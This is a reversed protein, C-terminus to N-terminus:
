ERLHIVKGGSKEIVEDMKNKVKKIENISQELALKEEYDLLHEYEKKFTAIRNNINPISKLCFDQYHPYFYNLADQKYSYNQVAITYKEKILKIENNIYEALVKVQKNLDSNKIIGDVLFDDFSIIKSISNMEKVNAANNIEPGAIEFIFNTAMKQSKIDYYGYLKLDKTVPIYRSLPHNLIQFNTYSFEFPMVIKGNRDVIGIKDNSDTCLFNKGDKFGEIKKYIPKILENGQYDILGILKDKEIRCCGMSSFIGDYFNSLRNGKFDFLAEKKDAEGVFVGNELFGYYRIRSHIPAAIIAGTKLDFLGYKATGDALKLEMDYVFLPSKVGYKQWVVTLDAENNYSSRTIKTCRTNAIEQLKSDTVYSYDPFTMVSYNSTLGTAFDPNKFPQEFLFNGSSDILYFEHADANWQDVYLVLYNKYVNFIDLQTNELEKIEQNKYFLVSKKKKKILSFDSLIVNEQAM